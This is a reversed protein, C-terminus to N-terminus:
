NASGVTITYNGGSSGLVTSMDAYFQRQTAIGGQIGICGATGLNGGDPHIRLETRTGGVRSDYMNSLDFSYGFGDVMMSPKDNRLRGNSVTYTGAPLYGRGGGGSRFYYDHGNIRIVGDASANLQGGNNISTFEATYQGLYTGQYFSSGRPISSTELASFEIPPPPEQLPRFELRFNVLGPNVTQLILVTGFALLLGGFAAQIKKKARTKKDANDSSTMYMYGGGIVAYVALIVAVALIVYFLMEMMQGLDNVYIFSRGTLDYAVQGIDTLPIFNEAHAVQIINSM